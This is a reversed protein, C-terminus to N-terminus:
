LGGISRDDAAKLKQTARCLVPSHNQHSIGPLVLVKGAQRAHSVMEVLEDRAIRGAANGYPHSRTAIFRAGWLAHPQVQRQAGHRHFLDCREKRARQGLKRQFALVDTQADVQM